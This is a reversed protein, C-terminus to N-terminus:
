VGFIRRARVHARDRRRKEIYSNVCSVILFGFPAQDDGPRWRLKVFSV